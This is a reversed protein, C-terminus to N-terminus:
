KKELITWPAKFPSYIKSQSFLLPLVFTSLYSCSDYILPHVPFLQSLSNLFLAISGIIVFPSFLLGPFHLYMLFDPLLM